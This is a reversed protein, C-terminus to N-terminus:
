PPLEEHPKCPFDIYTGTGYDVYIWSALLMLTFGPLFFGAGAVLAGLRGRALHGFYCCLEYAEPGSFPLLRPGHERSSFM